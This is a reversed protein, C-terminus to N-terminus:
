RDHSTVAADDRELRGAPLGVVTLVAGAAVLGVCWWMAARYADAVAGPDAYARGSLGVLLPLAAVALLGATRSIANNIGSAVGARSDPAAALVTGTLPAVLMSLGLGMGLMGPLVDLLFGPEQPVRALLILGGALVVAGSVMPLRPGRRTAVGGFRSALVLMVASIPVTAAGAALPTWGATTQLFIAIFVMSGTLAAYVFLTVLNILSFVRDTFLEPPVMPAASRREVVVFAAAAAIGVVAAGVTSVTAGGEPWATLSWTIGALSLPALLIGARDRGARAPEDRSEPAGRLLLLTIAALPLNIAFAWRWSYGVLWGGLVPGGATAIGLMGTWAGIARMRDKPEFSAQLLALSGPTLLAAAVGQLLRAAVLMQINPALACLASTLAFGAIGWAFVRRRGLQDGLSGGVLILAALTLTYGNIVWQLGALSADLEQGMRPLAVNVVTGDLFAIGSGLVAAALLRRGPASDLTLLSREAM